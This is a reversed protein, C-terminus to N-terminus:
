RISSWFSYPLYEISILKPWVMFLKLTSNAINQFWKNEPYLIIEKSFNVSMKIFSSFFLTEKKCQMFVHRLNFYQINWHGAQPSM